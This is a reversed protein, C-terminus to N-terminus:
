TPRRVGNEALSVRFAPPLSNAEAQREMVMVVDCTAIPRGNQFAAALVCWSRTGVDGIGSRIEVDDPHHGEALYDMKLQAVLWRHGRFRMLGLVHNFRVRATEFLAGMAVNNIHGLTDLDQFRTQIVVAHPYIAPDCRWAEPRAM